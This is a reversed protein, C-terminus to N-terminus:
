TLAIPIGELVRITDIEPVITLIPLAVVVVCVVFIFTAIVDEPGERM